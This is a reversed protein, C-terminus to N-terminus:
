ASAGVLLTWLLSNYVIVGVAALGKLNQLRSFERPFDGSLQNNSVDLNVLSDLLALDRPIEGSLRNNGLYLHKLSKLLGLEQPINGSLQNGDLSM